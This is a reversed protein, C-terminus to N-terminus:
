LVRILVIPLYYFEAEAEQLSVDIECHMQGIEVFIWITGVNSLLGFDETITM